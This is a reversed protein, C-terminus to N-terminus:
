GASLLFIYSIMHHKVYLRCEEDQQSSAEESNKTLSIRYLSSPLLILGRTRSSSIGIQNLAGVASIGMDALLHLKQM